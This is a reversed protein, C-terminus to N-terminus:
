VMAGESVVSVHGSQVGVFSIATRYHYQPAHIASIHAFDEQMVTGEPIRISRNQPRGNQKDKTM